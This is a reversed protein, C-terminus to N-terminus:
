VLACGLKLCDRYMGRQVHVPPLDPAARRPSAPQSWGERARQSARQSRAAPAPGPHQERAAPQLEPHGAARLRHGRGPHWTPDCCCCCGCTLSSQGATPEKFGRGVGPMRDRLTTYVHKSQKIVSNVLGLELFFTHFSSFFFELVATNFPFQLKM